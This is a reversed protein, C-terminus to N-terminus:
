RSGTPFKPSISNSEYSFKMSSKCLQCRQYQLVSADHSLTKHNDHFCTIKEIGVFIDGHREVDKSHNLRNTTICISILYPVISRKREASMYKSSIYILNKKVSKQDIKM